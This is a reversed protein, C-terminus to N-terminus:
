AQSTIEEFSNLSVENKCEPVGYWALSDGSQSQRPWCGFTAVRRGQSQTLATFCIGQAPECTSSALLGSLDPLGPELSLSVTGDYCEMSSVYSNAAVTLNAKVLHFKILNRFYTSRLNNTKSLYHHLLRVMLADDVQRRITNALWLELQSFM